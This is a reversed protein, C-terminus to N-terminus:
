LLVFKVLACLLVAYTGVKCRPWADYQTCYPMDLNHILLSVNFNMGMLKLTWSMSMFLQIGDKYMGWIFTDFLIAWREAQVHVWMYLLMWILFGSGLNKRGTQCLPYHYLLLFLGMSKNLMRYSSLFNDGNLMVSTWLTWTNGKVCLFVLPWRYFALCPFRSFLKGLVWKM